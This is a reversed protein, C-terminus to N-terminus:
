GGGAMNGSQWLLTLVAHVEPAAQRRACELVARRACELMPRRACELAAPPRNGPAARRRLHAIRHAHSGDPQQKGLRASRGDNARSGRMDLPTKM